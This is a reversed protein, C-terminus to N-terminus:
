PAPQALLSFRALQRSQAVLTGSESWVEGDGEVYGGSLTRSEFMCWNWGPEPTQRFHVTIEITPSSSPGHRRFMPPPWRDAFLPVAVRHLDRDIM